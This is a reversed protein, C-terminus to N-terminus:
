LNRVQRARKYAFLDRRKEGVVWALQV